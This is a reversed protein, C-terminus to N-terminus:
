ADARKANKAGDSKKVSGGEQLAMDSTRGTKTNQGWTDGGKQQDQKTKKTQNNKGPQEAPSKKDMGQKKKEFL